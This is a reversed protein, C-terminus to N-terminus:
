ADSEPLIWEWIGASGAERHVEVFGVGASFLPQGEEGTGTDHVWKVEVTVHIEHEGHRLEVVHIQGAQVPCSTEIRMGALSLDRVKVDRPSQLTGVIRDLKRRDFRRRDERIM